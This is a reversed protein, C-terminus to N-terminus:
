DALILKDDDVIEGLLDKRWDTNVPLKPISQGEIAAALLPGLERKSTVVSPTISRQACHQAIRDWLANVADRHEDRDYSPPKVRKPQPGNLAAEIEKLLSQGHHQALPRPVFKILGLQKTDTPLHEAIEYAAEDTLLGRPTVNLECAKAERWILLANFVARKKRPLKNVGKAKLKRSLPDNVYREHDCLEDCARRAYDSNGLTYLRDNLWAHLACLYRVDGAAYHIQQPTLPRRDWRSFKAGADHVVGLTQQITNGLSLPYDLGALGAAVQTDFINAAPKATLRFVPEIDQTGAHVIKTLTPDNLLAWWASLDKLALPDILMVRQTTAAQIVCLHPYYSDEGIFETDYGFTGAERLHAIADSLQQPTSILDPQNPCILPHELIPQPSFPKENDHAAQDSLSRHRGRFSKGLPHTPADPTLEPSDSTTM